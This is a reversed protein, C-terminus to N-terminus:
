EGGGVGARGPSFTPKLRSYVLRDVGDLAAGADCKGGVAGVGADM